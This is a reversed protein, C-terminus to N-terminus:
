GKRNVAVLLDDLKRYIETINNDIRKIHSYLEKNEQGQTAMAVRLADVKEENDKIRSFLYKVIGGGLLIVSGTLIDIIEAHTM